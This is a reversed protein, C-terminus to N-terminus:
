QNGRIKSHADEKERDSRKREWTNSFINLQIPFLHMQLGQLQCLIGVRYKSFIFM